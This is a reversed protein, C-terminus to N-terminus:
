QRYLPFFDSSSPEGQDSQESQQKFRRAQAVLMQYAEPLHVKRYTHFPWTSKAFASKFRGLNDQPSHQGGLNFFRFGQERAWFIAQSMLLNNPRLAFAERSSGALFYHCVPGVCLYTAAAVIRGEHVACLLRLKSGLGQRLEQFFRDPFYYWERAQNREMTERYLALFTQWAAEDEREEVVLGARKAKNINSRNGRNFGRWVAEESQTLDVAVISGNEVVPEGLKQLPAQNDLFPHLRAFEAVIGQAQCFRHFAEVFGQWLAPAREPDPTRALPGSYGYPSAIDFLERDFLERDRGNALAQRFPLDDIRRRLFPYVIYEEQNGFFFLLADEGGHAALPAVYGPLFFADHDPIAEVLAQWRSWDALTLLEEQWAAPVPRPPTISSLTM